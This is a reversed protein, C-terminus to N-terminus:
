GFCGACVSVNLDGALWDAQGGLEGPVDNHVTYLNQERPVTWLTVCPGRM